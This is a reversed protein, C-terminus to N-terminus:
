PTPEEPMVEWGCWFPSEGPPNCARFNFEITGDSWFRFISHDASAPDYAVEVLRAGLSPPTNPGPVEVWPEWDAPCEKCSCCAQRTQVVGDSWGRVVQFAVGGSLQVVDGAVVRVPPPPWVQPEDQAQAMPWPLAAALNLALLVAVVALLAPITRQKM